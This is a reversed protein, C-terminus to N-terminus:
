QVRHGKRLEGVSPQLMVLSGVIDATCMEKAEGKTKEGKGRGKPNSVFSMIEELKDALKGTDETVDGAFHLGTTGSTACHGDGLGKGQWAM